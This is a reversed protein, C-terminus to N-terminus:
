GFVIVDFTGVAITDTSLPPTLTVVFSRNKKTGVSVFAAQSPTVQVAYNAPLDSDFTVTTAVTDGEGAGAVNAVGSQIGVILRDAWSNNSGDAVEAVHMPIPM